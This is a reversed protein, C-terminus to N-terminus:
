PAKKHNLSLQCLLISESNPLAKAEIDPGLDYATEGGLLFGKRLKSLFPFAEKCQICADTVVYAM